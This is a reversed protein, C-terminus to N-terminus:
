HAVQLESIVHSLIAGALNPECCGGCIGITVLYKGRRSRIRPPNRKGTEFRARPIYGTYSAGRDHPATLPVM